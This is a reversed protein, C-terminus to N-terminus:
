PAFGKRVSQCFKGPPRRRHSCDHKSLGVVFVYSDRLGMYLQGNPIRASSSSVSYSQLKWNGVGGVNAVALGSGECRFGGFRGRVGKDDPLRVVDDVEEASPISESQADTTAIVEGALTLLPLLDRPDQKGTCPAVAQRFQPLTISTQDHGLLRSGFGALSSTTFM